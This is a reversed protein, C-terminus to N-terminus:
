VHQWRCRPGITRSPVEIGVGCGALTVPTSEISSSSCAGIVELVRGLRVAQVVAEGVVPNVFIADHGKLHTVPTVYNVTSTSPM